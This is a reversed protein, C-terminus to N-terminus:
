DWHDKRILIQEPRCLVMWSTWQFVGIVIEFLSNQAPLVLCVKLWWPKLLLVKISTLRITATSWLHLGGLHLRLHVYVLLSAWLLIAKLQRFSVKVYIWICSAIYLFGFGSEGSIVVLWVDCTSNTSVSRNSIQFFIEIVIAKLASLLDLIKCKFDNRVVSQGFFLLDFILVNFLSLLLTNM